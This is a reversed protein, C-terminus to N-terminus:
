VEVAGYHRAFLRFGFRSNRDALFRKPEDILQSRPAWGIRQSHADRQTRFKIRLQEIGGKSMYHRPVVTQAERKRRVEVPGTGVKRLM